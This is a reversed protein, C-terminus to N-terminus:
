LTISDLEWLGLSKDNFLGNMETCNENITEVPQPFSFPPTRLNLPRWHWLAAENFHGNANRNVFTTTLLYRSGSERFNRLTRMIDSDNMHVLCDRCLILDARPLPDSRIDRCEFAMSAKRFRARNAMVAEEVIDLGIYHEIEPAVHRVWFLDGCAADLLVRINLRRLLKPLESRIAETQNLSSGSGSRSEAGFANRSYIEQWRSRISKPDKGTV